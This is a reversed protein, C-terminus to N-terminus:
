GGGLQIANESTERTNEQISTINTAITDTSKHGLEIGELVILFLVMSYLLSPSKVYYRLMFNLVFFFAILSHVCVYMTCYMLYLFLPDVSLISPSSSMFIVTNLIIVIDMGEWDKNSVFSLSLM